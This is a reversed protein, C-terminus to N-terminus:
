RLSRAHVDSRTTLELGGLPNDKHLASGQVLSIESRKCRAPMRFICQEAPRGNRTIIVEEDGAELSAVLEGLKMKAESIPLTKAM